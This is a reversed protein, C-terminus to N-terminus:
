GSLQTTRFSGHHSVFISKKDWFVGLGPEDELLGRFFEPNTRCLDTMTWEGSEYERIFQQRREMVGSVKWPM